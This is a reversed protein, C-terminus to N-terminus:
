SCYLVLALNKTGLLQAKWCNTFLSLYFIMISIKSYVHKHINAHFMTWFNLPINQFITDIDHFISRGKKALAKLINSIYRCLQFKM